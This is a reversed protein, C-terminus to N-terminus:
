LTLQRIRQDSLIGSDKITQPTVLKDKREGIAFHRVLCLSECTLFRSSLRGLRLGPSTVILYLNVGVSVGGDHSHERRPAAFCVILLVATLKLRGMHPYFLCPSPLEHRRM